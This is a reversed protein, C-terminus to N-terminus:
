RRRARRTRRVLIRRQRDIDPLRDRLWVDYRRHSRREIERRVIAHELDAGSGAVRGSHQAADSVLHVRDLAVFLQCPRRLAAQPLEAIRVHVHEVAVARKAPQLM